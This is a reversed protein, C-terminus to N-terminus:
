LLAETHQIAETMDEEREKERHLLGEGRVGEQDCNTCGTKHIKM